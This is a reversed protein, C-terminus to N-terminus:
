VKHHFTEITGSSVTEIASAYHPTCWSVKLREFLRHTKSTMFSGHSHAADSSLIWRTPFEELLAPSDVLLVHCREWPRQVSAHFIKLHLKCLLELHVNCRVLIAAGPSREFVYQLVSLLFWDASRSVSNTSLESFYNRFNQFHFEFKWFRWPFRVFAQDNLSSM